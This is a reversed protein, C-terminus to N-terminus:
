RATRQVRFTATQEVRGLVNRAVVRVLYRGGPVRTEDGLLGNWTVTAAGPPFQRAALRQV